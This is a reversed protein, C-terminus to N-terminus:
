AAPQIPYWKDFVMEPDLKRKLERLRTINEGFIANVKENGSSYNANVLVEPHTVELRKIADVDESLATKQEKASVGASERVAARVRSTIKTAEERMVTDLAPDDYQPEFVINLLTHRAAYATASVPVSATVGHYRCELAVKSPAVTDGYKNMFATFDEFLQILIDVNIESSMQAGSCSYRQHTAPAPMAKHVANCNVYPQVETTNQVPGLDYLPKCLERGIAEPGDYFIMALPMVVPAGPPKLFGMYLQFKGKANPIASDFFSAFIEFMARAKDPTFALVGSNSALIIIM